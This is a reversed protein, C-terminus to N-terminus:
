TLLLMGIGRLQLSFSKLSHYQSHNGNKRNNKTKLVIPKSLRNDQYLLNIIDHVLMNLGNLALTARM